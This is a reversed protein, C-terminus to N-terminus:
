RLAPRGAAGLDRMSLPMVAAHIGAQDQLHKKQTPTLVPAAQEIFGRTREYQWERYRVFNQENSEGEMSRWPPFPEQAIMVALLRKRQDGGLPAGAEQLQETAFDLQMRAPLTKRLRDFQSGKSPGVVTSIVAQEREAVSAAGLEGASDSRREQRTQVVLAQVLAEIQQESLEMERFLTEYRQRIRVSSDASLEVLWNPDALPRDAVGLVALPSDGDGNRALALHMRSEPFHSGEVVSTPVPASGPHMNDNPLGPQALLYVSSAVFSSATMGLVM